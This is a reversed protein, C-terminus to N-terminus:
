RQALVAFAPGNPHDKHDFEIQLHHFGLTRLRRLIDDRSLWVSHDASGGCFGQWNLADNYAYGYSVYEFDGARAPIGPGFKATLDPRAAIVEPDFYHTWLFVRDTISAILGLTEIPDRLHYLVGSALCLDFRGPGTRLYETLDGLLFNCSKLGLLEKVLLCKLYSRTNAEIATISAAGARELMTSHGAELPGLELIRFGDVGGLQELMSTVRADEFLPVQGTCKDNPPPLRSSWEGQFIRLAAEGTPAERVYSDLIVPAPTADSPRAHEAAAPSTHRRMLQQLRNLM